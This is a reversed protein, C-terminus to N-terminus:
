NTPCQSCGCYSTGDYTRWQGNWGGHSSCTVPCQADAQSQDGIPAAPQDCGCPYNAQVATRIDDKMSSVWERGNSGLNLLIPNAESVMTYMRPYIPDSQGLAHFISPRTPMLYQASAGNTAQMATVMVDTSAMLNALEIALASQETTSNIGIVDSFFLPRADADDGLPMIRFQVTRRTEDSMASMAETFGIVARGYGESFWAARQYPSPADQASNYFSSAALLSQLHEIAEANLQAPDNPYTIPWQGDLSETADVYFCANTTGGALDMMLGRRDPPIQSTYSCQGVAGTVADLTTAQALANDGQRYFLINACGFMPIGLYNSGDAVGSLAYPLFDDTGRVQDASLQTLNGQAQFYGLYIADFVFVDLGDPSSSYGGDWEQATAFELTVDPHAQAWAATIAEQFQELRPVYPYLGVRLTQEGAEAGGTSAFGVTDSQNPEGSCASALLLAACLLLPM